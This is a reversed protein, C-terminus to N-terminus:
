RLSMRTLFVLKLLASTSTYLRKPVHTFNMNLVNNPSFCAKVLRQHKCVLTQALVHLEYYPLKQFVLLSWFHMPAQLVHSTWRLSAESLGALQLLAITSTYLRKPVYTFRHGAIHPRILLMSFHRPAQTCANPCMNSTLRISAEALFVLKFVASTSTYLRKPLYTFIVTLFIRSSWCPEFIPQHKCVLIQACM